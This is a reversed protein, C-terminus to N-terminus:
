NLRPDLPVRTLSAFRPGLSLLVRDWMEEAKTDFVIRQSATCTIWSGTDLEEDLQGAAWGAHGVYAHVAEGSLLPRGSVARLEDIDLGLGV